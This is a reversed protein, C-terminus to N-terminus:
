HTKKHILRRITPQEQAWWQRGGRLTVHQTEIKETNIHEVELIAQKHVLVVVFIEDM